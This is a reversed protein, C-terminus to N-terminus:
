RRIKPQEPYLHFVLANGQAKRIPKSTRTSCRTGANLAVEKPIGRALAPASFEKKEQNEGLLAVCIISAHNTCTFNLKPGYQKGFQPKTM